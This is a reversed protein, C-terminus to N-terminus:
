IALNRPITHGKDVSCRHSMFRRWLYVEAGRADNMLEQPTFFKIECKRCMALSPTKGLRKLIAFNSDPQMTYITTM